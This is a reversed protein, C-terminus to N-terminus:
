ILIDLLGESSIVANGPNEYWWYQHMLNWSFLELLEMVAVAQCVSPCLGLSKCLHVSMRVICKRLACFHVFVSWRNSILVAHYNPWHLFVLAFWKIGCFQMFDQMLFLVTANASYFNFFFASVVNPQAEDSWCITSTTSATAEKVSISKEKM